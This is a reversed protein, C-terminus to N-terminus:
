TKNFLILAVYELNSDGRNEISHSDGDRCVMCDGPVLVDEKGNDVVHAIGKLFYYIEFDGTHKHDGISCGPPIISIGFLRGVGYSDEKELFNIIEITGKGGKLNPEDNHRLEAAKRIM